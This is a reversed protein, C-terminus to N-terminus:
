CLYDSRILLVKHSYGTKKHKAGISYLVPIIDPPCDAFYATCTVPSEHVDMPYPNEFIPFSPFFLCSTTNEYGSLHSDQHIFCTINYYNILSHNFVQTMNCYLLSLSLCSVFCIYLLYVM